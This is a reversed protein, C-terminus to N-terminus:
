DGDRLLTNEQLKNQGGTMPEDTMSALNEISDDIGLQPSPSIETTKGGAVKM